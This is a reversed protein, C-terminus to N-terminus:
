EDSFLFFSSFSILNSGMSIEIPGVVHKKPLNQIEAVLNDYEVFKEKIVQTIPESDVFNQVINDRNESWIYSYQM